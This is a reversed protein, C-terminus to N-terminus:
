APTEDMEREEPLLEAELVEDGEDEFLPGSTALANRRQVYLRLMLGIAVFMGLSSEKPYFSESAMAAILLGLVLTLSAGGVACFLPDSRDHFIKISQWVIFIYFPMVLVFGVFGNDLLVELYANHPHPFTEGEGQSELIKQWLGIRIMAQRGYGIFPADWIKPIVYSWAVVRGSTITFEDITASSGPPGGSSIFGALMREQVAPFMIGICIIGVPLLPLYARWRVLCLVLGILGWTVYGARGGTEGQALLIITGALLCLLRDRRKPLLIAAALCAWSAGSFLMSLETRYYGVSRLLVRASLRALDDGSMMVSGLPMHKVVQLAILLYLSLLVYVSIEMRRRTRCADFFLVGPLFWKVCNILYESIVWALTYHGERGTYDAMDPDVAAAELPAFDFALRFFGWVIVFLYMLFMIKVHRPMDWILGQQKRRVWWAWLVNGMLVNWPNLGQIGAISHPMDPHQLFAMLVVVACLSVFWNKWAYWSFYLVAASCLLIRISM